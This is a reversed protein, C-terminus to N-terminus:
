LSARNFTWLSAGSSSSSAGVRRTRRRWIACSFSHNCAPEEVKRNALYPKVVETCLYRAPTQLIATAACGVRDAEASFDREPFLSVGLVTFYDASAHLANFGPNKALMQAAQRLDQWITQM